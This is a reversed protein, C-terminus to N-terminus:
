NHLNLNRNRILTGRGDIFLLPNLALLVSRDQVGNLLQARGPANRLRWPHQGPPLASSRRRNGAARLLDRFYIILFILTFTALAALHVGVFLLSILVVALWVLFHNRLRM